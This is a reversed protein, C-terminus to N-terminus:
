LLGISDGVSVAGNKIVQCYVGFNRHGFNSELAGLTDADKEGTLPNTRTTNCREIPEIVKLQSSGLYLEKGIWDLEEFPEAGSIWFNGRFRRPDLTLGLKSSLFDLSSVSLVSISCYDTDTLGREPLSYLATPNPLNSPCIQKVWSILKQNKELGKISVVLNPLNPHTLKILGDVEDLTISIANFLPAVAGRIFCSTPLWELNKSRFKTKEHTLAWIRDWPMTENRTLNVRSVLECGMSKIPHRWIQTISCYM